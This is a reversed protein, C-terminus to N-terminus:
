FFYRKVKEFLTSAEFVRVFHENSKVVALYQSASYSNVSVSKISGGIEKGVKLNSHYLESIKPIPKKEEVPKKEPISSKPAKEKSHGVQTQIAEGSKTRSLIYLACIILIIICPLITTIEM